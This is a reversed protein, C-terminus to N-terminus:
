HDKVTMGCMTFGLMKATTDMDVKKRVVTKLRGKGQTLTSTGLKIDIYSANELGYLLNELEIRWKKGDELKKAGYFEAVFPRLKTLSTQENDDFILQYNLAESEKTMKMLRDGEFVITNDHGGAQSYMSAKTDLRGSDFFDQDDEVKNCCINGM